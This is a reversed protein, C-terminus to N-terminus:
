HSPMCCRCRRGKGPWCCEEYVAPQRCTVCHTRYPLLGVGFMTYGVSLFSRAAITPHCIIYCHYLSSFSQRDTQTVAGRRKQWLVSCNSTLNFQVCLWAVFVCSSRELLLKNVCVIAHQRHRGDIPPSNFLFSHHRVANKSFVEEIGPDLTPSCENSAPRWDCCHLFGRQAQTHGLNIPWDHLFEGHPRRFLSTNVISKCNNPVDDAIKSRRCYCSHFFFYIFRPLGRKQNRSKKDFFDWPLRKGARCSGTWIAFSSAM